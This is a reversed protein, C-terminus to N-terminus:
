SEADDEMQKELMAVVDKFTDKNKENLDLLERHANLVVRSLEKKTPEGDELSEWETEARQPDHVIHFVEDFGVGDLIDNVYPDTSVITAQRDYLDMTLRTLIALLGLSTSDLSETETLDILINEYEEDMLVTDIFADLSKSARMSFTFRGVLKLVVVGEHKGFYAVGEGM